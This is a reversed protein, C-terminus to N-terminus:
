MEKVRFTKIKNILGTVKLVNSTVSTVKQGGICMPVRSPTFHAVFFNNVLRLM